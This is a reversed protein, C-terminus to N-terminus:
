ARRRLTRGRRATRAPVNGEADKPKKMPHSVLHTSSRRVLLPRSPIGQRRAISLSARRGNWREGYTRCIANRKRSEGAGGWGRQYGRVRSDSEQRKGDVLELSMGDRRAHAALVRQVARHLAIRM